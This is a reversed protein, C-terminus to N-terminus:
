RGGGKTPPTTLADVAEVLLEIHVCDICDTRLARRAKGVAAVKREREAQQRIYRELTEKHEGADKSVGWTLAADAQEHTVEGSERPAPPPLLLEAPKSPQSRLRKGCDRCESNIHCADCTGSCACDWAVRRPHKCSAKAERRVPAPEARGYVPCTMAHPRDGSLQCDCESASEAPASPAADDPRLFRVCPECDCNCTSHTCGHENRYDYATVRLTDAPVGSFSLCTAEGIGHLLYARIRPADKPVRGLVEALQARATDADKEHEASIECAATLAERVRDREGTLRAVEARLSAHEDLLRRQLKAHGIGVGARLADTANLHMAALDDESLKADTM